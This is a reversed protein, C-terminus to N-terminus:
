LATLFELKEMGQTCMFLISVCSLVGTHKWFIRYFKIQKIQLTEHWFLLNHIIGNYTTSFSESADTQLNQYFQLNQLHFTLKTCCLEHNNKPICFSMM